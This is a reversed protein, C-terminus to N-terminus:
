NVMLAGQKPNEKIIQVLHQWIRLELDPKKSIILTKLGKFMERKNDEDFVKPYSHM